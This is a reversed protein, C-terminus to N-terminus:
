YFITTNEFIQEHYKVPLKIVDKILKKLNIDM